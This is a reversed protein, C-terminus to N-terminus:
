FYKMRLLNFGVAAAFVGIRLYPSVSDFVTMALMSIGAVAHVIRNKKDKYYFKLSQFIRKM